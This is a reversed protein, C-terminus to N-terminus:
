FVFSNTDGTDQEATKIYKFRGENLVNQEERLQRTISETMAEAEPVGGCNMTAFISSGDAMVVYTGVNVIHRVNMKVGNEFELTGILM